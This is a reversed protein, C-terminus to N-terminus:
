LKIEVNLKLSSFSLSKKVLKSYGTSERATTNLGKNEM